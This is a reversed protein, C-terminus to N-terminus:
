NYIESLKAVVDKIEIRLSEPSIVETMEGYSLIQQKFDFTPSIFYEFVSYENSTEIEKQSRHLPLTRIYKAQDSHFKLKVIQTDIREDHIIGYFNIFYEEPDFDEPMKFKNNVSEIQHIRDLAYIRLKDSKGILYWRQKFVKLFYPEVEFETADDLWFSQYSMKLKVEDRMAEIITTLHKQGSPIIEFQIRSKLTHSENILNNVAFTNLLWTRVGGRQMEEINDIFYKYTSKDCEINIDFMEEIANRHNHFTKLPIKKGDSLTNRLWKRNIGEFTIKGSRYITDVLWIYRNFLNKAMINYNKSAFNLNLEALFM